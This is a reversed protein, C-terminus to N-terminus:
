FARCCHCLLYVYVVHLHGPHYVREQIRQSCVLIGGSIYVANFGFRQELVCHFRHRNYLELM